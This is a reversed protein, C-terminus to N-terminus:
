WNGETLSSLLHCPEYRLEHDYYKIATYHKVTDLRLKDNTIQFNHHRLVNDVVSEAERCDMQFWESRKYLQDEDDLFPIRSQALANHILDEVGKLNLGFHPPIFYAVQLSLYPDGTKLNRLRLLPNNITKGIKVRNYDSPTMLVYIWGEGYSMEILRSM